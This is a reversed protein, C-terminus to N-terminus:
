LHYDGASEPQYLIEEVQYRKKVQAETVEIISGVRYGLLSTGMSDLVSTNEPAKGADVPFVLSRVVSEGTEVDRLRVRSNMTVVDAPVSKPDVIRGASLERDLDDLHRAFEEGGFGRAVAILEKLRQFDFRTIFVERPVALTQETAEEPVPWAAPKPAAVKLLTEKIRRVQADLSESQEPRSWYGMFANLTGEFSLALYVPHMRDLIGAEVGRELIKGVADLYRYYSSVARDSLTEPEPYVGSSRECSFLVFFLRHRDYDTLRFRILDELMEEPEVPASAVSRVGELLENAIREIVAGYLKEKSAFANYLTGVGVGAAQAIEETTAAM